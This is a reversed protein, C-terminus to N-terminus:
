LSILNLNLMQLESEPQVPRKKFESIVEHLRIQLDRKEDPTLNLFFADADLSEQGQIYAAQVKLLLSSEEFNIRKKNNGNKARRHIFRRANEVQLETIGLLRAIESQDTLGNELYIEVAGYYWACKQDSKAGLVQRGKLLKELQALAEDKRNQFRSHQAEVSLVFVEHDTKALKLKQSVQHAKELSLGKKANLVESLKSAQMDLHNAFARLSYRPNMNIRRNLQHRLIEQYTMSGTKGFDLLWNWIGPFM